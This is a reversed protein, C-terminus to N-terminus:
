TQKAGTQTWIVGTDTLDADLAYVQRALRAM